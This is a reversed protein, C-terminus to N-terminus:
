FDRCLSTPDTVCASLVAMVVSGANHGVWVAVRHLFTIIASAMTFLASLNAVVSSCARYDIGFSFIAFISGLPLSDTTLASFYSM